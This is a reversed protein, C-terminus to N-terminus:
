NPQVEVVNGLLTILRASYVGLCNGVLTMRTAYSRVGVQAMWVAAGVVKSPNDHVKPCSVHGLVEVAVTKLVRGQDAEPQGNHLGSLRTYIIPPSKGVLRSKFTSGRPLRGQAM